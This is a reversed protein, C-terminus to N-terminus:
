PTRRLWLLLWLRLILSTPETTQFDHRSTTLEGHVLSCSQISWITVLFIKVDSYLHWVSGKTNKPHTAVKNVKGENKNSSKRPAWFNIWRSQEQLHLFSRLFHFFQVAFSAHGVALLSANHQQIKNQLNNQQQHKFTKPCVMAVLSCLLWRLNTTILSNACFGRLEPKPIITIQMYNALHM